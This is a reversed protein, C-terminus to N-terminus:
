HWINKASGHQPEARSVPLNTVISKGENRSCRGTRAGKKATDLVPPKCQFDHQDIPM